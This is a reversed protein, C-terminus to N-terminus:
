SKWDFERSRSWHRKGDQPRLESAISNFRLV